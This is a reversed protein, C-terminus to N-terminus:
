KRGSAILELMKEAKIQDSLDKQYINHKKAIHRISKVHTWADKNSINICCERIEDVVMAQTAYYNKKNHYTFVYDNNYLPQKKKDFFEQTALEIKSIDRSKKGM